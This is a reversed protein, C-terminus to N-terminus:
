DAEEDDEETEDPAEPADATHETFPPPKGAAHIERPELLTTM